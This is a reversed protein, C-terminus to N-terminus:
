YVEMDMFIFLRNFLLAKMIISAINTARTVLRPPQNGSDKVGFMRESRVIQVRTTM